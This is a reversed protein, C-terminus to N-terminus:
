VGAHSSRVFLLVSPCLQASYFNKLEHSIPTIIARFLSVRLWLSGRIVTVTPRVTVATATNFHRKLNGSRLQIIGKFLFLVPFLIITVSVVTEFKRKNERTNHDRNIGAM